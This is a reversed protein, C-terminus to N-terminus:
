FTGKIHQMFRSYKSRPTGPVKKSNIMKILELPQDNTFEIEIEYDDSFFYSNHDFDVKVGRPFDILKNFWPIDYHPVANPSVKNIDGWTSIEKNDAENKGVPVSEHPINPITLFLKHWEVDVVKAADELEKVRAAILKMEKVKNQFEPSKKDMAAMEKNAANQEARATEAEAVMSRRKADLELIADLDVEFKKKKIAERVLEPHERLLKLDIM